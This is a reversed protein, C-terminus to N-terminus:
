CGSCWVVFLACCGLETSGTEGGGAGGSLREGRGWSQHVQKEGGVGGTEEVIGERVRESRGGKVWGLHCRKAHIIVLHNM